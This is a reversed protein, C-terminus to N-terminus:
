TPDADTGVFSFMKGQKLNRRIIAVAEHHGDAEAKNLVRKIAASIMQYARRNEDAFNRIAGGPRVCQRRYRILAKIETDIASISQTNTSDIQGKRAIQTDVQKTALHVVGTDPRPESYDMGGKLQSILKSNPTAADVGAINAADVGAISAKMAILANLRKNVAHLTKNDTMPIPTECIESKRLCISRDGRAVANALNISDLPTDPNSILLNLAATGVWDSYNELCNQVMNKAEM